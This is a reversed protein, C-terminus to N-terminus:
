DALADRFYAELRSFGATSAHDDDFYFSHKENYIPCKQENCFVDTPDIISIFESNNKEVEFWAENAIMQRKRHSEVSIFYESKSELYIKIEDASRLKLLGEFIRKPNVSNHPVQLLVVLDVSERSFLEYTRKVAESYVKKAFEKKPEAFLNDTIPNWDGSNSGDVYYDWRAILIVKKVQQANALRLAAKVHRQCEQSQLNPHPEGRFAYVDLLPLCGSTGFYLGSHGRESMIKGLTKTSSKSHSDGLVIFKFDSNAADGIKCWEAAAVVVSDKCTNSTVDEFYESPRTITDILKVNFGLRLNTPVGNSSIIYFTVLLIVSFSISLAALLRRVGVSNRFLQEILFYSVVSLALTLSILVFKDFNEPLEAGIRSFAFIPFHWLYASYSVLGLGVFPKSSLLRGAPNDNSGYGIIMAAGIVPLLTYYSPHPTNHDFFLVSYAILCLGILPLYRWFHRHGAKKGSLERYAIISGIAFEWFRGFPLYFNLQPDRTEMLVAFQFSLVSISILGGLFVSRSFRFALTALVPFVFYFQEEVGLSWTHLLPKLLSSDAGYQTTNFYFFFNSAFFISAIISQAYEVFDLPLLKQWAFPLSAFIVAFLMPLIRRARKEFFRLFNFSGKLQLESLIIRTILYGSIVFFIDVGVFGGQFWVREFLVLQAHYLIVSVVAVARLGDIEARYLNRDRIM